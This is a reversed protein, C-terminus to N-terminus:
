GVKGIMLNVLATFGMDRVQTGPLIDLMAQALEVRRAHSARRFEPWLKAALRLGYYLILCQGRIWDQDARPQEESSYHLTDFGWVAAFSDKVVYTIGGHVPIYQVLNQDGTPLRPADRKPFAVYGNLADSLEDVLKLGLREQKIRLAEKRMTSYAIWIEAGRSNPIPERVLAQEAILRNRSVAPVYLGDPRRASKREAERWWQRAMLKRALSDIEEFSDPSM